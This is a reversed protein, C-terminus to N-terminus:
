EDGYPSRTTQAESSKGTGGKEKDKSIGLRDMRKREAKDERRQRIIELMAEWREFESGDILGTSPVTPISLPGVDLRPDYSQEFYKDMKSSIGNPPSPSRPGPSARKRRGPRLREIDEEESLTPSAPPPPSALAVERRRFQESLDVTSPAKTDATPRGVSGSAESVTEASARGRHPKPSSVISADRSSLMSPAKLREVGKGKLSSKTDDWDEQQEAARERDRKRDAKHRRDESDSEDSLPRRRRKKPKSSEEERHGRSKRELKEPDRSRSHRRNSRSSGEEKDDKDRRRKRYSDDKSDDGSDDRHNRRTHRESDRHREGSASCLRRHHRRHRHSEDEHRSDRENREHRRENGSKVHRDERSRSWNDDRRSSSGGMLRRLREAETAEKARARREQRQQEEREAKAEAMAETQAKYVAKNYEDTNRIIASLFRKNTKPANPDPRHLVITLMFLLGLSSLM